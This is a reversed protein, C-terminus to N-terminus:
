IEDEELPVADALSVMLYHSRLLEADDRTETGELHMLWQDKKARRAWKVQRETFKDPKDPDKSLSVKELHTLREPFQTVVKVSLDGRIGHPRMIQGLVLFQPGPNSKPNGPGPQSENQNATM